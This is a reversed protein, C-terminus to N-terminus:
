WTKGAGWKSEGRTDPLNQNEGRASEGPGVAKVLQQSGRLHEEFVDRPLFM